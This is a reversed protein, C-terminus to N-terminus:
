AYRHIPQGEFRLDDFPVALTYKGYKGGRARAQAVQAGLILIARDVLWRRAQLDTDLGQWFRVRGLDSPNGGSYSAALDPISMGGQGAGELATAVYRIPSILDLAYDPHLGADTVNPKRKPGPKGKPVDAGAKRARM